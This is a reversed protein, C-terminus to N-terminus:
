TRAGGNPTRPAAELNSVPETQQRMMMREGNIRHFIATACIDINVPIEM